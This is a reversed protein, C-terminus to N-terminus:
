ITIGNVLVITFQTLFEALNETVLAIADVIQIGKPGTVNGNLVLYDLVTDLFEVVAVIIKLLLDVM